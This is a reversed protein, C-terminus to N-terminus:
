RIGSKRVRISGGSNKKPREIPTETADVVVLTYEVDSKLLAKKGPLAFTGEKILTNEVWRLARWCASESVQYSGAIHFMTRYERLYELAVLLMDELSLEPPRGGRHKQEQQRRAKATRLIELMKEFTEPLVGSLRRFEEQSFQRVYDYRM